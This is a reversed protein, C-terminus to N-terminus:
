FTEESKGDKGARDQRTGKWDNPTLCSEGHAKGSRLENMLCIWIAHLRVCPKCALRTSVHKNWSMKITIGDNHVCVCTIVIFRDRGVWGLLIITIIGNEMHLHRCFFIWWHFTHFRALYMKGLFFIYSRLWIGTDIGPVPFIANMGISINGKRTPSLTCAHTHTHLLGAVFVFFHRLTSSLYSSSPTYSFSVPSIFFSSLFFFFPLPM